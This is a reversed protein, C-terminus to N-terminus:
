RGARNILNVMDKYANKDSAQKSLGAYAVEQYEKDGDYIFRAYENADDAIVISLFNYSDMILKANKPNNLDFKYASIMYNVTEANVVLTTISSADNSKRRIENYRNATARKELVNWMRAANGKKAANKANVADVISQPYKLGSTLQELQFNEKLLAKSLHAEIAKEVMDRNSVIEDTTYKNLQIRFADKVYNFLTGNIVDKLEKRYKKFVQPSKGDAIKLSITPDISFESGDKANITFAPYDVTQVYTPYEYVQETFPNYWVAGTVLSVDDVGKDSGYLNVKIGECGADVREYGCSSMGLMTFLTILCMIVKSKM